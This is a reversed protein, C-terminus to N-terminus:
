STRRTLREYAAALACAGLPSLAALALPIARVFTRIPLLKAAPVKKTIHPVIATQLAFTVALDVVVIAAVLLAVKAFSVRVVRVSDLLAAPPPEGLVNSAGTLSLLVILLLGPVVLAVGGMLVAAIVICCPVIGRVLNRAGDLFARWQPLPEGRVVGRVAPAVGAVLWLQCIWATGALVWGVRVQARAKVLDHAAGARWAVYLLPLFAVASLLTLPVVYRLWARLTISV